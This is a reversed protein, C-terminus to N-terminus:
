NVRLVEKFQNYAWANFREAKEVALRVSENDFRDREYAALNKKSLLWALHNVGKTNSVRNNACLKGLEAAAQSHDQYKGRKGTLGVKIADSLSIASHIALLGVGSRYAEVDYALRKMGQLFHDAKEVYQQTAVTNLNKM